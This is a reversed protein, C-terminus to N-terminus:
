TLVRAVPITADVLYGGAPGPGTSLSGGLAAVRERMGALGHGGTSEGPGRGNDTVTVRVEGDDYRLRVTVSTAEAHRVTNTLAEQAVRYAALAVAAPVAAADGSEDLTVALGTARMRAVLDAVATLDAAPADDPNADRLVGILSKLDTMAKGRV